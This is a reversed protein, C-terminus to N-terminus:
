MKPGLGKFLSSPWVGDMKVECKTLFGYLCSASHLLCQSFTWSSLAFCHGLGGSTASTVIGNLFKSFASFHVEINLVQVLELHYQHFPKLHGLPVTYETLLEKSPHDAVLLIVVTWSSLFFFILKFLSCFSSENQVYIKM